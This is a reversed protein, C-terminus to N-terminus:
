LYTHLNAMKLRVLLFHQLLNLPVLSSVAINRVIVTVRVLGKSEECERAKKNGEGNRDGERCV